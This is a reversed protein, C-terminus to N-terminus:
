LADYSVGQRTGFPEPEVTFLYCRLDAVFRTWADGYHNVPVLARCPAPIIARSRADVQCAAAKRAKFLECEFAARTVAVHFVRKMPGRELTLRDDEWRVDFPHVLAGVQWRNPATRSPTLRAGVWPLTMVRIVEGRFADVLPQRYTAAAPRPTTRDSVPSATAVTM